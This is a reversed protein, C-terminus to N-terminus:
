PNWHEQLWTQTHPAREPHAHLREVLSNLDETEDVDYWAPVNGVNLGLAGARNRLQAGTHESSWTIGEFLEPVALRLGICWVGGDDAPGLVLDHEQTAQLAQDIYEVPLDPSDSGLFVLPMRRQSQASAAAAALRQGLDGEVQALTSIRDISTDAVARPLYGEVPPGDFALILHEARSQLAVTVSDHLLATYLDCAAQDGLQAAVRTKVRGPRPAKLFIALNVQTGMSSVFGDTAGSHLRRHVGIFKPIELSDIQETTEIGTLELADALHRMMAYILAALEDERGLIASVTDVQQLLTAHLERPEVIRSFLHGEGNKFLTLEESFLRQGSLFPAVAVGLSKLFNTYTADRAFIEFLQQLRIGFQREVHRALHALTEQPRMRLDLRQRELAHRLPQRRDDHLQGFGVTLREIGALDADVQPQGM